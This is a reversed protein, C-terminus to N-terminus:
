TLLIIIILQESQMCCDNVLQLDFPLTFHKLDSSSDINQVFWIICDCLSCYSIKTFEHVDRIIVFCQYSLTSFHISNQLIQNNNKKPKKQKWYWSMWLLTKIFQIQIDHIIKILFNLIQHKYQSRCNILKLM